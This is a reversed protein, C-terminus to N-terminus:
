TFKPLHLQLTLEKLIKNELSIIKNSVYFYLNKYPPALLREYNVVFNM